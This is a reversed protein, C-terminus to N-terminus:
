AQAPKLKTLIKRALGTLAARRWQQPTFWGSDPVTLRPVRFVSVQYDTDTISHRVCAIPVAEATADAIQPLEWMGAMLRADPARQVLLVAGQKEVLAYTLQKRKRPAQRGL